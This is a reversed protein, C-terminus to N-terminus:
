SFSPCQLGTIRTTLYFDNYADEIMVSTDTPMAVIRIGLILAATEHRKLTMDPDMHFAPDVSLPVAYGTSVDTLQLVTTSPVDLPIPTLGQAAAATAFLPEVATTFLRWDYPDAAAPEVRQGTIEATAGIMRPDATGVDFRVMTIWHNCPVVIMQVVDGAGLRAFKLNDRQWGLESPKFPMGAAYDVSGSAGNYHANFPPSKDFPHKGYPPRYLNPHGEGQGYRVIPTGGKYIQADAM